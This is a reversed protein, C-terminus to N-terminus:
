QVAMAVTWPMDQGGHGAEFPLANWGGDVYQRYAAKFGPPTRVVGNELKSPTQDGVRNLPALVEAALKGAEALVAAATEPDAGEVGPLESIAPLDVVHNLVFNMDALPPAYGTM